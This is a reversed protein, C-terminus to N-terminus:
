FNVKSLTEEPKPTTQFGSLPTPSDIFRKYLRDKDGQKRELTRGVLNLRLPDIKHNQCEHLYKM